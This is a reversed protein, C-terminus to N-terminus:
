STCQRLLSSAGATSKTATRTVAIAIALTGLDCNGPAVCRHRGIERSAGPLPASAGIAASRARRAPSHRGMKDLM